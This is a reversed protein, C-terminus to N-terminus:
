EKRPAHATAYEACADCLSRVSDLPLHGMCGIRFTRRASAKGAYVVFGRERVYSRLADFCMGEPLSFALIVPAQSEPALCVTFGARGMRESLMTCVAQYRARRAAVGGSNELEDLAERLALMVHTPPTFRWEGTEKLVRDQACLDLTLTRAPQQVHLAGSRVICFGLGPVGQLGKNSSFAVCTAAWRDAHVDLVAFSSMADVLLACSHRRAVVAIEDVCNCVGTTTECHVVAVHTYNQAMYPSCATGTIPAFEDFSLVTHALGHVTCIDGMRRGYAGNELILVRGDSPVLSTLMAEVAYTGSGQVPVCAFDPAPAHALKLLDRLVSSTTEKFACDRSGVDHLMARKTRASTTLPGPTFLLPDGTESRHPMISEARASPPLKSRLFDCTADKFAALSQKPRGLHKNAVSDVSTVLEVFLAGAGASPQRSAALMRQLGKLEAHTTARFTNEYGAASALGSFDVLGACEVTGNATCGQTAATPQGGVSEHCSNNLLVHVLNDLRLAHTSVLSGMHMLQAGDGDICWVRRTPQALAVGQAISLAHGMSGVMYLEGGAARPKVETCADRARQEREERIRFLERSTYGTTSVVFDDSEWVLDMIAELAARRSLTVALEDTGPPMQTRPIRAVAAAATSAAFTGHRVLVAVPRLTSRASETARVLAAVAGDTDLPMEHVEMECSELMPVLQRGQARHQPEDCVSPEGRWGILLVAPIGFADSHCLSMLPNVANGLGSNQMYVVPVDGTALYWGSATALAAGENCSIVHTTGAGNAMRGMADCFPKLVSDPVGFFHRIGHDRLRRLLGDADVGREPRPVLSDAYTSPPERKHGANPLLNIITKVPSLMNQVFAGTGTRLIHEAVQKMRPYAARLMHNAYICISVGSAFLEAETVTSYTSPVAVVAVRTAFKQYGVMFSRIEDFTEQSSHIMIADAGAAIYAAARKLAEAEGAGSILAEIRAIVMFKKNARASTAAAIKQCFTPIDELQQSVASGFLSNQKLRCKDEIICASVGISELSRVTFCLVEPEGGTDADYILPKQTVEMTDRVLQMRATTDVVEIDPKGKSVSATLSSSWLADFENEGVRATEAIIGTIGNHTEMVRLTRSQKLGQLADFLSSVRLNQTDGENRAIRAILMTTSIGPTRETRMFKGLRMPTAYMERYLHDEAETHGHFVMDIRHRTLFEEDIVIPADPIVEDAYKCAEVAAVREAMAMVPSSKYAKIVADDAHVGVVVTYGLERVRRLQNAHGIHFLDAVMDVYGRM